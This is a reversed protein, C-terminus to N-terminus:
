HGKEYYEKIQMATLYAGYESIHQVDSFTGPIKGQATGDLYPQQHAELIQRIEDMVEDHAPVYDPNKQMGYVENVPGVYFLCNIEYKEVLQIFAKLMNSQFESEQDVVTFGNNKQAYEHTANLEMDLTETMQQYVNRLGVSDVVLNKQFKDQEEDSLIQNLDHYYLSRFNDVIRAGYVPVSVMPAVPAMFEEYIGMDKAPSKVAGLLGNAVYRNYYDERFNNLGKRWYTPNVYLIINLDKFVDPNDLILPFYVYSCRGAGGFSYFRHALTSDKDLLGWFNLGDMYIGTESTGLVLYDGDSKVQELFSYLLRSGSKIHKGKPVEVEGSSDQLLIYGPILAGVILLTCCASVWLSNKLVNKTTLM